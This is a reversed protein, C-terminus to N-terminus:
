RPHAAARLMAARRAIADRRARLSPEADRWLMLLREYSALAGASDGSAAQLAGRRELVHASYVADDQMRVLLPQAVYRTYTALASDRQGLIEFGRALEAIPAVSPPGRVSGRLEAVGESAEGAAIRLLARTRLLLWRDGARYDTPVVADYEALLARARALRNVQAFLHALGVYPRERPDIASLPHHALAEDITRIAAATDGLLHLQLRAAFMAADLADAYLGASDRTARMLRLHELAELPKGRIADIWAQQSLPFRESGRPAFAHLMSDAGAANGHALALAARHQELSPVRPYRALGDAVAAAAGSDNGQAFRSSALHFYTLPTPSIGAGHVLVREAEEHRRLQILVSGITAWFADVPELEAHNQFSALASILDGSIRYAYQGEVQYRESEPLRDRLAYARAIAEVQRAPRLGMNGLSIALTVWADAFTSDLALAEEYLRTARAYEGAFFARQGMAHKQLAALSTTAVRLPRPGDRIAGLSAGLHRRIARSLRDVAPLIETSDRATERWGEVLQGSDARVIRASLVLSAGARRVDGELVAKVGDRLAIERATTSDLRTVSDRRMRQLTARISSWPVVSIARSQSLDLRIAETVASAITSDARGHDFDAILIRERKDAAPPAGNARTTGAFRTALGGAVAVLALAAIVVAGGPWRRRRPTGDTIAREITAAAPTTAGNPLVLPRASRKAADGSLSSRVAEARAVTEASPDVGLERRLSEAFENYARLAGARDGARDLLDILRRLSTEDLPELEFARRARDVAAAAHGAREERSSLQWATAIARSRLTAREREVWREFEPAESVFFGPLFDGRYLRMADELRGADIAARFSTVDCWIAETDLGVEEAGRTTVVDAGLVGRLVFLAQSLARRGRTNDLEPWFMGLLEDRRRWGAPTAAALYTLLALPKPQAVIATPQDSDERELQVTGLLTLKLM